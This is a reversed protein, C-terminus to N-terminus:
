GERDDSRLNMEYELNRICIFLSDPAAKGSAILEDIQRRRDGETNGSVVFVGGSSGRELKEIRREIPRMTEARVKPEYRALWEKQEDVRGM